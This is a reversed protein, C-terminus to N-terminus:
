RVRTAAALPRRELQPTDFVNGRFLHRGYFPSLFELSNPVNPDASAPNYWDPLTQGTTSTLPSRINNVRFTQNILKVLEVLEVNTNRFDNRRKSKGVPM